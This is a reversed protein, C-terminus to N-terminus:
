RVVVYRSAPVEVGDATVFDGISTNVYVRTGDEYITVTVGYSLIEHGVILQNYLHGLDNRHRWYFENAVDAWRGFENAFYRRYRSVQLDAAPVNMFSFFLSSGSEVSKLLHYSFDEALNLPRGAFHVFGHLAIQYFPVSADAVNFGQDSLPMGTVIDAFPIAYSFGYNLWIGTGGESLERLLDVRMNMSEERSIHARENFDGALTSALCRFAINGVGRAAADDVFSRITRLTFDPTALSVPDALIMGETLPGFYVHSRGAHEVRHRTVQRAIDRHRSFGDFMRSNRMHVFEGELFFPFGLRNATSVMDDFSRRGGLQSILNVGNPVSHDISHNHAGRMKIHVNQWGFDSFTEMMSAAEDYTTLAFPRDVPFGLLHQPTLASGLIEVMVNIPAEVRNNLWPYRAQLFERFAVAMGVYGPNDTFVYRVVIRENRNISYEHILIRADTRGAVDMEAGHILRFSPHVRGFPSGMGAVEARIAAYSAGEEIIAAFTGGNRYIGFVPYASRNDHIFEERIVAADWGFVNSFYIEQNYRVSNFRMIAGSGDPVFLYGDDNRHGAGFFPMLILRTPLFSPNYTLREFPVTVVMENNYLEFNLILNFVPGDAETEVGFYAMDERWDYITYGAYQLVDQIRQRLPSALDDNLVYISTPPNEGDPILMPFRELIGGEIDIPRLRAYEFRRYSNMILLMDSRTMGDTFTYLREAYIAYPIHFTEQVVGVTFRLEMETDSLIEHEFRGTRVSFRYTDLTASRGGQEEYELVFLSQMHFHNIAATLALDEYTYEPTSHWTRGTALETVVIRATETFFELRLYGNEITAIPDVVEGYAPGFLAVYGGDRNLPACATFVGALLVLAFIKKM